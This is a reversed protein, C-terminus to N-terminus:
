QFSYKKKETIVYDLPIDWSCLPLKEHKQIDFAVGVKTPPRGRGFKDVLARDYFGGGMGLRGGHIDFSVLPLIITDIVFTKTIEHPHYKPEPISFQNLYLNNPNQTMPVFWLAPRVSPAVIPVYFRKGALLGLKMIGTPDIEGDSPLYLAVRKARIFWDQKIIQHALKIAAQKRYPASINKRLARAKKRISSRKARIGQVDDIM